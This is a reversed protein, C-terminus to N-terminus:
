QEIQAVERGLRVALGVAEEVSEVGQGADGGRLLAGVLDLCAAECRARMVPDAISELAPYSHMGVVLRFMVCACYGLSHPLVHAICAPLHARPVLPVQFLTFFM